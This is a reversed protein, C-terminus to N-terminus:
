IARMDEGNLPTTRSYLSSVFVLNSILVHYRKSDRSSFQAIKRHDADVPFLSELPPGLGLKASWHPVVQIFM